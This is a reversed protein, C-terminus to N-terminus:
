KVLSGYPGEGSLIGKASHSGDILKMLRLRHLKSSIGLEMELISETCEILVDGTIHEKAIAQSHQEFGMVTFLRIINVTDLTRLFQINQQKVNPDVEISTSPDITPRRGGIPSSVVAARPQTQASDGGRMLDEVRQTLKAISEKLLDVEKTLKMDMRKMDARLSVIEAASPTSNLKQKVTVPACDYAPSTPTEQIGAGIPVPVQPPVSPAPPSSESLVTPKTHASSWHRMATSQVLEIGKKKGPQMPTTLTSIKTIGEVCQVVKSPDFNQMLDNTAEYLLDYEQEDKPQMVQVEIDLNVPIDILLPRGTEAEFNCSAILSLDDSEAVLTVASSTLHHPLDHSTESSVFLYCTTPFPQQIHELIEPLFLRVDYPKTSFHGECSEFLTKVTSNTVSYVMLVRRNGKPKIEKIILLENKEITNDAATGRFAATTRVVKPLPSSAMIDSVKPYKYGDLAKPVNGEPNHFLGFEVSSNLPIRYDMKSCDQVVIVKAKKVFHINYIDGESVSFRETSGYFGKCVHVRIPFQDYCTQVLQTLTLEEKLINYSDLDITIPESPQTPQPPLVIPVAQVASLPQPISPQRKPKPPLKPINPQPHDFSDHRRSANPPPLPPRHDPPTQTLVPSNASIVKQPLTDYSPPPTFHFPAKKTPSVGVDEYGDSADSDSM